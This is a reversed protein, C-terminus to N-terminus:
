AEWSQLDRKEHGKEKLKGHCSCQTLLGCIQARTSARDSTPESTKPFGWGQSGLDRFSPLLPGPPQAELPCDSHGRLCEGLRMGGRKDGSAGQGTCAWGALGEVLGEIGPRLSRSRLGKVNSGVEGQSLPRIGMGERHFSLLDQPQHVRGVLPPLFPEAGPDVGERQPVQVPACHGIILPSPSSPAQPHPGIPLQTPTPTSKEEQLGGSDEPAPHPNSSFLSPKRREGLIHCSQRWLAWCSRSTWSFHWDELRCRLGRLLTLLAQHAPLPGLPQHQCWKRCVQLLLRLRAM